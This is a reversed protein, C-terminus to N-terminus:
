AGKQAGALRAFAERILEPTRCPRGSAVEVWVHETMGSSLLDEGCRVEYAFRLGRSALRDIWASVEVTDGYKAGKRYRVRSGVVMLYYGHEELESYHFGSLTCLRTRALEFWVLYNSHHVIGMQDTEAYRVEVEITAKTENGTMM